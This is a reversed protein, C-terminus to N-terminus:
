RDALAATVLDGGFSVLALNGPQWPVPAVALLEGRGVSRDGVEDALDVRDLDGFAPVQGVLQGDM